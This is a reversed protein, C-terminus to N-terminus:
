NLLLLITLKVKVNVLAPQYQYIPSIQYIDECYENEGDDDNLMM